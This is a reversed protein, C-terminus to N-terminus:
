VVITVVLNSGPFTGGVQTINVSWQNNIVVPALAAVQGSNLIVSTAGASIALSVWLTGSQYINFLVSNGISPQSLDARVVSANGSARIFTPVVANVKNSLINQVVLSYQQLDAGSPGGNIPIHNNIYIIPNIINGTM